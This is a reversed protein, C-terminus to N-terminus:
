WDLEPLTDLDQTTDVNLRQFTTTSKLERDQPLAFTANLVAASRDAPYAPMTNLDTKRDFLNLGKVERATGYPTGDSQDHVLSLDFQADRNKGPNWLLRAQYRDRTM